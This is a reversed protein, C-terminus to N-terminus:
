LECTAGTEASPACAHGNPCFVTTALGVPCSYMAGHLDNSCKWTGDESGDAACSDGVPPCSRVSRGFHWAQGTLYKQIEYVIPSGTSMDICLARYYEARARNRSPHAWVPSGGHADGNEFLPSEHSSCAQRATENDFAVCPPPQEVHAILGMTSFIDVRASALETPWELRYNRVYLTYTTNRVETLRIAERGRLETPSSANEARIEDTSILQADGCSPSGYYVMCEQGDSADFVLYMDLDSPSGLGYGLHNVSSRVGWTLMFLMEDEALTSPAPFLIADAQPETTGMSTLYNAIWGQQVLGQQGPAVLTYTTTALFEFRFYGCEDTTTTTLAQAEASWFTESGYFLGVAVNALPTGEAASLVFGDVTSFLNAMLSSPVGVTCASPGFSQVTTPAPPLADYSLVRASPSATPLAMPLDTLPQGPYTLLPSSSPSHSGQAFLSPSPTWPWTPGPSLRSPAPLTEWSHSSPTITPPGSAPSPSQGETPRSTVLRAASPELTPFSSPSSSPSVTPSEVTPRLSPLVSPVASPMITPQFQGPSSVPAPLLSPLASPTMLLLATPARTSNPPQLPAVWVSSPATAPVATPPPAFSPLQMPAVSPLGISAPNQAMFLHVTPVFKVTARPCECPFGVCAVSASDCSGNPTQGSCAGTRPNQCSGSTGELCGACSSRTGSCISHSSSTDQCECYSSSNSAIGTAIAILDLQASRVACLDVGAGACLAATVWVGGASVDACRGPSGVVGRLQEVRDHAVWQYRSAATATNSASAAGLVITLATPSYGPLSIRARASTLHSRAAYSVSVSFSGKHDSVGTVNSCAGTGADITITANALTARWCEIPRRSCRHGDAVIGDFSQMFATKAHVSFGAAGGYMAPPVVCSPAHVISVDIQLVTGVCEPCVTFNALAAAIATVHGHLTYNKAEHISSQSLTCSLLSPSRSDCGYFSANARGIVTVSVVIGEDCAGWEAGRFRGGKHVLDFANIYRKCSGSTLAIDVANDCTILGDDCEHPGRAAVCTGNTPHVCAGFRAESPNGLWKRCAICGPRLTRLVYVVPPSPAVVVTPLETLLSSAPTPQPSISVESSSVLAGYGESASDIVASGALPDVPATAAISVGRAVDLNSHFNGAALEANPARADPIAVEVLSPLFFVAAILVLALMSALPKHAKHKLFLAGGGQDSNGHVRTGVADDLAPLKAAVHYAARSVLVLLIALITLCVLVNTSNQEVADALADCCGRNLCGYLYTPREAGPADGDFQM